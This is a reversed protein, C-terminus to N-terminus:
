SGCEASTKRALATLSLFILPHWKLKNRFSIFLWKPSDQFIWTPWFSVLCIVLFGVLGEALNCLM